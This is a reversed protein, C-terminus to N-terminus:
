QVGVGSLWDGGGCGTVIVRCRRDRMDDALGCVAVGCGLWM